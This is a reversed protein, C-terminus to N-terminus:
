LKETSAGHAVARELAHVEALMWGQYDYRAPMTEYLGVVPVHSQKAAQLLAGTTSDTVQQNYLFVRVRRRRLLSEQLSVAQPALDVGNMVDAQLSFPTLNRTGAAELMYDGVPETTAVPTHPYRTRFRALARLWPRLSRDFAAQRGYFYSSHDPQLQALDEAIARAVAPMTAPEYWLHPNRTSSPLHLLKQAEVVKRSTSSTASEIKNMFGDYGAGNQVVLRAAGVAAAVHPSAEFSHPDVNPNSMVAYVQVYSGGIQAIVNAYQSQAGVALIKGKAVAIGAGCGSVLLAAAAALVVATALRRPPIRSARRCAIEDM